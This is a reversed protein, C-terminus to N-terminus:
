ALLTNSMDSVKDSPLGYGFGGDFPTDLKGKEGFDHQTGILFARAQGIVPDYQSNRATLLAMLCVATNYTPLNTVCISGDPKTQNLIFSYARKLYAPEKGRYRDM